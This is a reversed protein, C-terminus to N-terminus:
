RKQQRIIMRAINFNACTDVIRHFRLKRNSTKLNVCFNEKSLNLM